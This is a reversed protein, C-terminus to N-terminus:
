LTIELLNKKDNVSKLTEDSVNLSTQCPAKINNISEIDYKNKDFYIKVDTHRFRTAREINDIKEEYIKTIEDKPKGECSKELDHLEKRFDNISNNLKDMKGSRTKSYYDAIEEATKNELQKKEETSFGLDNKLRDLLNSTIKVAQNEINQNGGAKESLQQIDNAFQKINEKTANLSNELQPNKFTFYEAPLNNDFDLFLNNIRNQFPKKNQESEEFFKKDYAIREKEVDKAKLVAQELWHPLAKGSQLFEQSLRIFEDTDFIMM